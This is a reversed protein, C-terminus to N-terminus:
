LPPLAYIRRMEGWDSLRLRFELAVPPALSQDPTSTDPVWNDAWNRTDLAISEGEAGAAGLSGLFLLQLPAATGQSM